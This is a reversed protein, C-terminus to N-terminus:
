ERHTETQRERQRERERDRDTERRTETQRDREGRQREEGGRGRERVVGRGTVSLICDAYAACIHFPGPILRSHTLGDPDPIAVRKGVQQVRSRQEHNYQLM